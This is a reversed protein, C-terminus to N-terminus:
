GRVRELAEALRELCRVAERGRPGLAEMVDVFPEATSADVRQALERGMPTLRLGRARKDEALRCRELEGAAGMRDALRSVNTRDLALRGALESVSPAEHDLLELLAWARASGGGDGNQGNPSRITAHAAILRRIADRLARAEAQSSTGQGAM